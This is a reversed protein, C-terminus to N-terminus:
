GRNRAFVQRVGLRFRENVKALILRTMRPRWITCRM